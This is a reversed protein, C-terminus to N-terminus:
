EKKKVRYIDCEMIYAKIYPRRSDGRTHKSKKVKLLFEGDSFRHDERVKEQIMERVEIEKCDEIYDRGESCAGVTGLPGELELGMVDDFNEVIPYNKKGM